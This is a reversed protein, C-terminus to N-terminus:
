LAPAAAVHEKLAQILLRHEIAHVRAALSELTDERRIPVDAQALVPGADVAEDPVLHVMVGTRDIEGRRYADLAREIADTGPFAGPLAPHLNLIRAPYHQVFADTFIHMWGALVVWDADFSRLIRALAVDYDERPRGAKSYPLLPFYVLPIGHQISRKNGYAERRNSVVVAVEVGPLDGAAIADIIAQLNTGNGSILAAIRTM